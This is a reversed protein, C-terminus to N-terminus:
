KKKMPSYRSNSCIPKEANYAFNEYNDEDFSDFNDYYEEENAIEANESEYGNDDEVEYGDEDYEAINSVPDNLSWKFAMDSLMESNQVNIQKQQAKTLRKPKSPVQLKNSLHAKSKFYNDRAKFFKDFDSYSYRNPIEIYLM